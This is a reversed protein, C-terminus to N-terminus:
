EKDLEHEHPNLIDGVKPKSKGKWLYTGAPTIAAYQRKGSAHWHSTMYITEIRHPHKEDENIRARKAALMRQAKQISNLKSKRQLKQSGYKGKLLKPNFQKFTKM